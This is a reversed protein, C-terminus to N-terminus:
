NDTIFIVYIFKLPLNARLLELCFTFLVVFIYFITLYFNLNQKFIPKLIIDLLCLFDCLWM